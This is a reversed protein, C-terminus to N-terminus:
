EEDELIWQRVTDEDVEVGAAIKEVSFGMKAFNVAAKKAKELGGKILGEAKGEEKGEAKGKAKGEAIGDERGMEYIEKSVDCMEGAGGEEDKKFFSVRKSLAGQSMDEPDATKFYQMLRAIDSEDDVAANVYVIHIGDEYSVGTGKFCKEVEYVTRGAKWLDTESIYFIYVEPMESYSQGKLLCESDIMAAYFRTRRAHDITDSRQIELNYLKGKSDEALIDLIADHSTIKSIRYQARVEKVILDSIGTLIRVVHQCAAKDNLVVSMFVDSLLNFQRAKELLQERRKVIASNSAGTDAQKKM